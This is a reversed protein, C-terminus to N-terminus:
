CGATLVPSRDSRPSCGYRARYARGFHSPSNFGAALAAETVGTDTAALLSRAFRLRSQQVYTQFSIGTLQHFRESFYNPSLFAQAAVDALTIPERFHQDIYFLARRVPDDDAGTPRQTAPALERAFTILICALLAEVLRAAGPRAGQSEAWLRDFDSRAASFDDIVWPHLTKESDLLGRLHREAVWPDIVVNFCVLPEESPEESLPEFGHFDSPSLLMSSGASVVGPQGNCTHRSRGSLVHVLEYFDHWHVAIDTVSQKMVVVPTNPTALLDLTYRELVPQMMANRPGGSPVRDAVIRLRDTPVTPV